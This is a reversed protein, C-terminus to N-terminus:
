RYYKRTMTRDSFKFFYLLKIKQMKLWVRLKGQENFKRASTVVRQTIIKRKYGRLRQSLNVDEMIKLPLYGGVEDFVSRKIFIGQDGMIYGVLRSRLNTYGANLRFFLGSADFKKYFCGYDFDSPKMILSDWHRPLLTDSHLFLLVRGRAKKAGANMQLARGKASKVLILKDKLASQLRAARVVRLTGGNADCVIIEFSRSKANKVVHKITNVIIHEERYVPIIVSIDVRKVM